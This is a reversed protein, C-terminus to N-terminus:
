RGPCNRNECVWEIGIVNDGIMSLPKGCFDCSNLVAELNNFSKRDNQLFFNALIFKLNKARTLPLTFSQM